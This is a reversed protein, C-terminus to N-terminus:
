IDRHTHALTCIYRAACIPDKLRNHRHILRLAFVLVHAKVRAWIRNLFFIQLVLNHNVGNLVRDLFVLDKHKNLRYKIDGM